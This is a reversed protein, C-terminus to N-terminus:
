QTNQQPKSGNLINKNLVIQQKQQAQQRLQHQKLIIQSQQQQQQLTKQKDLQNQKQQQMLIQKQQMTQQHIQLQEAETLQPRLPTFKQVIRPKQGLPTTSNHPSTERSSITSSNASINSPSPSTPIHSNINKSGASVKNGVINQSRVRDQSVQLGVARTIKVPVVLGENKSELDRMLRKHLMELDKYLKTLETLKTRLTQIIQEQRETKIRLDSADSKYVISEVVKQLVLEELESKSLSDINSKFKKLFKLSINKRSDSNSICSSSTEDIVLDGRSSNSEDDMLAGNSNASISDNCLLDVANNKEITETNMDEEILQQQKSTDDESITRKILESSLRRKKNIDQEIINEIPGSPRKRRIKQETETDETKDNQLDCESEKTILISDDENNEITNHIECNENDNIESGQLTEESNNTCETNVENNEPTNETDLQIDNECPMDTSEDLDISNIECKEHTETKEEELQHNTNSINETNQIEMPILLSDDKVTVDLQNKNENASATNINEIIQDAVENVKTIITTEQDINVTDNTDLDLIDTENTESIDVSNNSVLANSSESSDPITQKQEKCSTEEQKKCPIEKILDNDINVIDDDKVNTADEESNLVVNHLSDESKEESETISVCEINHIICESTLPEVEVLNNDSILSDIIKTNDSKKDLAEQELEICNIDSVPSNNIDVIESKEDSIESSIDNENLSTNLNSPLTMMSTDCESELNVSSIECKSNDLSTSDDINNTLINEPEDTLDYMHNSDDVNSKLDSNSNEINNENVCSDLMISKKDSASLIDDDSKINVDNHPLDVCSTADKMEIDDTIDATTKILVSENVDVSVHSQIANSETQSESSSDISPSNKMDVDDNINSCSDSKVTEFKINDNFQIKNNSTEIEFCSELPAANEMEIDDNIILNESKSAIGNVLDKGINELNNETESVALCSSSEVSEVILDSSQIEQPNVNIESISNPSSNTINNELVDHLLNDINSDVDMKNTHISSSEIDGSTNEDSKLIDSIDSIDSNIKSLSELNEDLTVNCNTEIVKNESDKFNTLIQDEQSILLNESTTTTANDKVNLDSDLIDENLKTSTSCNSSMEHQCEDNTGLREDSVNKDVNAMDETHSTSPENTPSNSHLNDRMSSFTTSDNPRTYEIEDEDDDFGKLEADLKRLLDDDSMSPNIDINDLKASEFSTDNKNSLSEECLPTSTLSSDCKSEAVDSVIDFEM